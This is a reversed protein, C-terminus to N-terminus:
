LHTIFNHQGVEKIVARYSKQGDLIIFLGRKHAALLKKLNERNGGKDVIHSDTMILVNYGSSLASDLAALAADPLEDGGWSAKTFLGEIPFTHQPQKADIDSFSSIAWAKKTKLNAAYLEPNSFGLIGVGFIGQIDGEKEQIFKQILAMTSPVVSAMSGSTDFAAFMKFGLTETREGPKIAGRGMVAVGSAATAARRNIKAYTPEARSATSVFQRLLAQWSFAPPKVKEVDQYNGTGKQTVDGQKATSGPTQDDPSNPDFERRRALRDEIDRAIAEDSDFDDEEGEDDGSGGKGKEDGEDDGQEGPEGDSPDGDGDPGSDIKPRDKDEGPGPSGSDKSKGGSQSRPPWEEEQEIPDQGPPPPPPNGGPPPPPPPPDFNIKVLDGVNVRIVTM